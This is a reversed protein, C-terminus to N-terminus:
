RPWRTDPVVTVNVGVDKGSRRNIATIRALGTQVATVRGWGDVTAVSPRSSTWDVGYQTDSNATRCREGTSEDIAWAALELTWGVRVEPRHPSMMFVGECTPLGLVSSCGAVAILVTLISIRLSRPSSSM